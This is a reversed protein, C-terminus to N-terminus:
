RTSHNAAAKKTGQTKKKPRLQQQHSGQTGTVMQPQAEKAPQRVQQWTRQNGISKPPSDKETGSGNTAKESSALKTPSRIRQREKTTTVFLHSTQQQKRQRTDPIVRIM